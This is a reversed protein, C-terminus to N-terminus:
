CAALDAFFTMKWRRPVADYRGHLAKSLGNGAEFHVNSVQEREASERWSRCRRFIDVAVVRGHEGDARAATLAPKGLCTEIDLVTAGPRIRATAALRESAPHARLVPFWREWGAAVRELAFEM